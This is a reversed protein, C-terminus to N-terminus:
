KAVAGLVKGSQRCELRLQVRWLANAITTLLQLEDKFDPLQPEVIRPVYRTPFAVVNEPASRKKATQRKTM